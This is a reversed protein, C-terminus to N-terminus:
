ELRIKFKRIAVLLFFATMSIMILTEKWIFQWGEGKIMINKVVIIFWKPPMLNSIWQLIVPMNEIPYIFGSLLITPLMLGLLSIFMAVMQSNSVTSILIGLSLALSIFLLSELLLIILSGKVPLGFVFFGLLIIVVANIFSLGIYPIVKGVVIQFPKIPSVMLVEMTGLEKERSISISTMMASILMLILAMTGPVFMYVGKLGENYIMRVEPVIINPKGQQYQTMYDQMIGFTYNVILNATNPDSADAIIQVSGPLGSELKKRFDPEFVIVEKVNGKKMAPEVEKLSTLNMVLKFYGSSILKNSIERTAQDKSQDLIAIPIDKIENTVVYGFIMIQAIPMGFLILLTRPDRFIHLFEKRIFGYFSKM